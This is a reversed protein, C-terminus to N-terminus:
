SETQHRTFEKILEILDVGTGFCFCRFEVTISGYLEGSVKQQRENKNKEQLPFDLSNM